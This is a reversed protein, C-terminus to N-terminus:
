WRRRSRASGRGETAGGARRDPRCIPTSAHPRPSLGWEHCPLVQQLFRVRLRPRALIPVTGTAPVATWTGHGAAHAHVCQLLAAIALSRGLRSLRPAASRSCSPRPSCPPLCRGACRHRTRSPNKARETATTRRRLGPTKAGRGRSSRAVSDVSRLLQIGRIAYTRTQIATAASPTTPEAAAWGPVTVPRTVFAAVLTGNVIALTDTHVRL